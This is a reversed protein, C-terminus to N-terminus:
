RRCRAPGPSGACAHAVIDGSGPESFWVHMGGLAHRWDDEGFPGDSREAFAAELMTRIATLQAAGVHATHAVRVRGNDAPDM